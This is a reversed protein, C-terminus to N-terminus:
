ARTPARAVPRAPLRGARFAKKCEEGIRQLGRRCGTPAQAVPGAKDQVDRVALLTGDMETLKAELQAVRDGTQRRAERVEKLQAELRAVTANADQAKVLDVATTLVKLQEGQAVQARALQTATHNGYGAALMGVLSVLLTAVQAWNVGRTWDLFREM